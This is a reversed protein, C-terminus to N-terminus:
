TNGLTGDNARSECECDWGKCQGTAYGKSQCFVKCVGEKICLAYQKPSVTEDDCSCDTMEANCSGNYRGIGYCADRCFRPLFKTTM